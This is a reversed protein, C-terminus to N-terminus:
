FLREKHVIFYEDSPKSKSMCNHSICIYMSVCVSDSDVQISSNLKASDAYLILLKCRHVRFVAKAWSIIKVLEFYTQNSFLNKGVLFKASHSSQM